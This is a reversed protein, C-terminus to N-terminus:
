AFEHISRLSSTTEEHNSSDKYAAFALKFAEFSRDVLVECAKLSQQVRALV